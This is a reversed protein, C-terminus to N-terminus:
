RSAEVVKGHTDDKARQSERRMGKMEEVNKLELRRSTARESGAM